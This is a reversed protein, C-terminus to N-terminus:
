QKLARHPEVVVDAQGDDRGQVGGVTQRQGRQRVGHEYRHAVDQRDESESTEATM